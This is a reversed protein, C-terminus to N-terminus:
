KGGYRTRIWGDTRRDRAEDNRFDTEVVDDELTHCVRRQVSARAMKRRRGHRAQGPVRDDGRMAVPM